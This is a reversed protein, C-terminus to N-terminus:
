TDDKYAGRLFLRRYEEAVLDIEREHRDGHKHRALAAHMRGWALIAARAMDDPHHDRADRLAARIDLLLSDARM